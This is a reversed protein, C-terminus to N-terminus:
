LPYACDFNSIFTSVPVPLFIFIQNVVLTKVVLYKVNEFQPNQWYGPGVIVNPDIRFTGVLRAALDLQEENM